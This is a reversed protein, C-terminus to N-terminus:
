GGCTNAACLAYGLEPIAGGAGDPDAVLLLRPLEPVTSRARRHSRGTLERWREM